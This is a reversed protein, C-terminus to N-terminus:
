LITTFDSDRTEQVMKSFVFETLAEKSKFIESNMVKSIGKVNDFDFIITENPEVELLQITDKITRHGMHDSVASFVQKSYHYKAVMDLAWAIEFANTKLPKYNLELNTEAKIYELFKESLRQLERNLTSSTLPKGTKYNMYMTDDTNSVPLKAYAELITDILYVSLPRSAIDKDAIIVEGRCLGDETDMVDDWSVKLQTGIKLGWFPAHMCLLGHGYEGQEWLWRGLLVLATSNWHKQNQSM